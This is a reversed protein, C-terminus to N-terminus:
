SKKGIKYGAWQGAISGASGLLTANAEIDAGRRAMDGAVRYQSAQNRLDWGKFKAQNQSEWSKLDAGYRIAAQDLEEKTFTDRAVDEATASGLDIGNAAQAARQASDFQQGKDRLTKSERMAQDQVLEQEKQSAQEVAGAQAENTKALYEYYKQKAAGSDRQAQSGSIAGYLQVGTGLVMLATATTPECM